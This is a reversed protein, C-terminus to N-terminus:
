RRSPVHCGAHTYWHPGSAHRTYWICPHQLNALAARCGTWAEPQSSDLHVALCVHRQCEICADSSSRVLIHNGAEVWVRPIGKKQKSYLAQSSLWTILPNAHEKRPFVASTLHRVCESMLQSQGIAPTRNVRPSLVMQVFDAWHRGSSFEQGQLGPRTCLTTTRAPTAHQRWCDPPM